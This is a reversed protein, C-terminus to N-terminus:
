DPSAAQADVKRVAGIMARDGEPRLTQKASCEDIARTRM